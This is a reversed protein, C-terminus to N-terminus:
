SGFKKMIEILVKIMLKYSNGPNHIQNVTGTLYTNIEPAYFAFAGSLGSHGILEPISNFPSFYWPAKFRHIGIGSELPFFISNWQSIEKLYSKPFLKGTMFAKLFVMLEKSTSVIGGDAGFSTMAKPLNLQNSKFYLNKPKHDSIVSYLYTQSLELVDCIEKQLIEELQNDYQNEIIRGLLQYNTDSYHAKNPKSPEFLPTMKKSWDVAQQFDWYMDNGNTLQSKLSTKKPQKKEFYDPIGSTHALLNSITIQNSYDKGKYLHLNNLIDESVYKSITDNLDMKGNERLKFILTSTFLKTTSAIFYSDDLAFDGSVGFWDKGDQHVGLSIGFLYKNKISNNLIKQLYDMQTRIKM